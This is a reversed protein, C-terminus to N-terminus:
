VKYDQLLRDLSQATESLVRSTQENDQANTSTLQAMEAIHTINRNVEETVASQEESATAIQVNMDKINSIKEAIDLLATQTHGGLEETQKAVGRGTQMVEVASHAGSQLQLILGQIEETSQQTRNALSRVEDAVVAFGRGHEGARAAEIAANLALLNTQEAIARIVDIVAGINESDKGLKDIVDAAHEVENALSSSAEIMQSVLQQGTNSADDAAQAADAANAAHHAVEHVTASMQNIATAVQDTQTNQEIVAKLTKGSVENVQQSSGTVERVSDVLKGVLSQFLGIFGNFEEIIGAIEDRRHIEIRRTLDGGGQNLEQLSFNLKRMPPIVKFYILVFILFTGFTTCFAFSVIIWRAWQRSRDFQQHSVALKEKMVAALQGFQGTLKTVEVDFGTEPDQMIRNGAERDQELYASAMREGVDHMLKLQSIIKEFDVATLRTKLRAVIEIHKVAEALHKKARALGDREGTAGVDTLYQQIQIINYRAEHLHDNAEGWMGQADTATQIDDFLSWTIVLYTSFALVGTIFSAVIVGKISTLYQFNVAM